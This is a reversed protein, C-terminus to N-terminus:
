STHLERDETRELRPHVTTLESEAARLLASDKRDKQQIRVPGNRAIPQDVPQPGLRRRWASGV